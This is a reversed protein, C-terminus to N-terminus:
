KWFGVLDEFSEAKKSVYLSDEDRSYHIVKPMRRSCHRSWLALSNAGANKIVLSDDLCLEPLKLEREMFDGSFCLPGGIDYSKIRNWEKVKYFQDLSLFNHKSAGVQYAERVFADAGAHILAIDLDTNVTRLAAIRSWAWACHGYTFRGFETIIRKENWCDGVKQHIAKAYEALGQSSSGDLRISAGGGIDVNKIPSMGKALRGEDIEKVLDFILQIISANKSINEIDSGAHVHIGVLKPNDLYCQIIQRRNTIPEGFKSRAAAVDFIEPAGSSVMPLIRLGLQLEHDDPYFELESISNANVIANPFKLCCLQIEDPTKAPSDWVMRESPVGAAAAIHMEEMSACEMGFGQEAIHQLTAMLPHTKVPIAHISDVPFVETLHALRQDLINTDVFYIWQDNETILGKAKAQSMVWSITENTTLSLPM